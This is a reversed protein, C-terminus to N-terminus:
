EQTILPGYSSQGHSRDSSESNAYRQRLWQRRQM